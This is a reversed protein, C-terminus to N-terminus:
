YLTLFHVFYPRENTKYDMAIQESVLKENNIKIIIILMFTIKM